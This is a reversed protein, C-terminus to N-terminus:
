TSFYRGVQNNTHTFKYALKSHFINKKCLLNNPTYILFRFDSKTVRCQFDLKESKKWNRISFSLGRPDSLIKKLPPPSLGLLAFKNHGGTVFFTSNILKELGFRIKPRHLLTLQLCGPIGLGVFHLVSPASRTEDWGAELFGQGRSGYRYRSWRPM